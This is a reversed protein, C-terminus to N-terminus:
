WWASAFTVNRSSHSFESKPIKNKGGVPVVTDGGVRSLRDYPSHLSRHLHGSLGLAFIVNESCHSCERIKPGSNLVKNRGCLDLGFCPEFMRSSLDRTSDCIWAVIVKRSDGFIIFLWWCILAFVCWFHNGPQRQQNPENNTPNTILQTKNRFRTENMERPTIQDTIVKSCGPDHSFDLDKSGYIRIEYQVQNNPDFYRFAFNYFLRPHKFVHTLLDSFDVSCIVIVPHAIM